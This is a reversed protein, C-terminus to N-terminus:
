RNKDIWWAAIGVADIADNAEPHMATGIPLQNGYRLLLRRYIVDKPTSGKWESVTVLQSASTLIALLGLIYYSVGTLMAQTGTTRTVLNQNGPEEILIVDPAYKRAIRLAQAGIVYIRTRWEHHKPKIRGYAIIEEGDNSLIAWGTSTTSPDVGMISM